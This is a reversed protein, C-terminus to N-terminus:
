QRKMRNKQYDQRKMRYKYLACPNDHNSIQITNPKKGRPLQCIAQVKFLDETLPIFFNFNWIRPVVHFEKEFVNQSAKSDENYVCVCVCMYIYIYIYINSEMFYKLFRPAISNM